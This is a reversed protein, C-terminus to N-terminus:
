GGCSCNLISKNNQRILQILKLFLRYLGYGIVCGLTNHIVDDVECVGKMSVLQILEIIVSLVFGLLAARGWTMIRLGYGSLLGVPIFMMTNILNIIAKEEFYSNEPIHFYSRFPILCYARDPNCDRFLVTTALLLVFWEALLLVGTARLGDCLGKRLTLVLLGICFLILLLWYVTVPVSNIAQLTYTRLEVM